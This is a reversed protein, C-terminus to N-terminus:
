KSRTVDTCACASSCYRAEERQLPPWGARTAPRGPQRRRKHRTTIKRRTPGRRRRAPSPRIKRQHSGQKQLPDIHNPHARSPRPAPDNKNARRARPSRSRARRYPRVILKEERPRRKRPLPRHPPPYSHQQIEAAAKVKQLRPSKAPNAPATAEPSNTVIM